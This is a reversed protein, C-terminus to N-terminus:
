VFLLAVTALIQSLGADPARQGGGIIPRIMTLSEFDGARVDRDPEGKHSECRRAQLFSVAVASADLSRATAPAVTQKISPTGCRRHQSRACEWLYDGQAKRQASLSGNPSQGLSERARQAKGQGHAQSGDSGLLTRAPLRGKRNVGAVDRTPGRGLECRNQVNRAM